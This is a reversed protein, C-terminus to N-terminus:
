EIITYPPISHRVCDRILILKEGSDPPDGALHGSDLFGNGSFSPTRNYKMLDGAHPSRHAAEHIFQDFIMHALM